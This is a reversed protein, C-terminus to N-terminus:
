ITKNAIENLKNQKDQSGKSSGFYFNLVTMFVATVTTYVSLVATLDIGDKVLNLARLILYFTVLGWTTTVFLAIIFTINKSLWSEKIDNM